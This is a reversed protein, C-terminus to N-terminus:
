KLKKAGDPKYDPHRFRIAKELIEMWAISSSSSQSNNTLILIYASSCPIKLGSFGVYVYQCRAALALRPKLITKNVSGDFCRQRLYMCEVSHRELKHKNSVQTEKRWCLNQNVRIHACIYLALAILHNTCQDKFHLSNYKICCVSNYWIFCDTRRQATTAAHVTKGTVCLVTASLCNYVM